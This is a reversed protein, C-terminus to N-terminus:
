IGATQSREALAGRPQRGRRDHGAALRRHHLDGVRGEPRSDPRVALGHHPKRERGAQRRSPKRQRAGSM